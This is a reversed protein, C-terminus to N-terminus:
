LSGAEAPKETSTARVPAATGGIQEVVLVVQEDNWIGRLEARGLDHIM